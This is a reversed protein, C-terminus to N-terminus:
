GGARGAAVQEEIHRLTDDIGDNIGEDDHQTHLTVEVRARAGDPTVQLEGHYDNPGESGWTLARRDADIAFTAEAEVKEPPGQEGAGLARRDGAAEPARRAPWPRTTWM